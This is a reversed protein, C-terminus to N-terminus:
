GTYISLRSGLGTLHFIILVAQTISRLQKQVWTMSPSWGSPFSLERQKMVRCTCVVFKGTGNDVNYYASVKPQEPKLVWQGNATDAFHNKAYARSGLLGEEEGSWLVIRITRRPQVNLTKLIRVAEMMVSCGAANDTAGTAGHWSDLHGGLMVLEDKLTPDTGPIEAVVNYGKLDDEFFRTKIDAEIEV